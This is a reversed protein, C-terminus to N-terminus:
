AVTPSARCIVVTSILIAGLIMAIGEFIEESRGEFQGVIISILLGVSISGLIGLIIGLNVNKKLDDKQTKHIYGYFISIILIAELTERFTIVLEPIM